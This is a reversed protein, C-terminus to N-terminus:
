SELLKTVILRVALFHCLYLGLLCLSLLRRLVNDHCSTVEIGEIGWIVALPILLVLVLQSATSLKPENTKHM